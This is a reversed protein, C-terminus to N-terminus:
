WDNPLPPAAPVPLPDPAEAPRLFDESLGTDFVNGYGDIYRIDYVWSGGRGVPAGGTIQAVKPFREDGFNVWDGTKYKRPMAPPPKPRKPLKYPPKPLGPLKIPKKM